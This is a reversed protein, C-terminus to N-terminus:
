EGEALPRVAQSLERPSLPGSFKAAVRGNADLVFVWPEMTGLGWEAMEPVYALTQFDSYVEIHIYNVTAATEQRVAEVSELVPACWKTTCLGPTLFGVVTPRNTQLADAVTMQYYAPNPDSGSSLKALDPETALTRNTSAPVATGIEPSGSAAAVEIVFDATVQTGDELTMQTTVGWFGPAPLTPYAVWYPVEYDSYTTASGSWAPDSTQEDISVISLSVASVNSAPEPGDLLAFALRFEGVAFDWSVTRVQIPTVSSVTVDNPQDCGALLLLMILIPVRIVRVLPSLHLNKIMSM